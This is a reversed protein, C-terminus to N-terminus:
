FNNKFSGNLICPQFGSTSIVNSCFYIAVCNWRRGVAVKEVMGSESIASDVDAAGSMRFEFHRGGFWFYFYPRFPVLHRHSKLAVGVNEIVSAESIVM